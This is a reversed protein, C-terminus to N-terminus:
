NEFIVIRYETQGIQGDGYLTATKTQGPFLDELRGEAVGVLQDDVFFMMQLGLNRIVSDSNTAEIQVKPFLNDGQIFPPGLSIVQALDVGPPGEYLMHDVDVRVIDADTPINSSSALEVARTQGPELGSIYGSAVGVIMGDRKYTAKASFSKSLTSTNTALTAALRTELIVPASFVIGRNSDFAGDQVVPLYVPPPITQAGSPMAPLALTCLIAFMVILLRM